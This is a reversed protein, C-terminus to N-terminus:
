QTAISCRSEPDIELYADAPHNEISVLRDSAISHRSISDIEEVDCDEMDVFGDYRDNRIAQIQIQHSRELDDAVM